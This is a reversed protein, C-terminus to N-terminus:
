IKLAFNSSFKSMLHSVITYDIRLPQQLTYTQYKANEYQLIQSTNGLLLDTLWVINVMPLGFEKGKACKKSTMDIKKCIMVTNQKSLYTTLRAGTEIIMQKVRDREEEEFGTLCIIHKHGPKTLGFVSPTPLHIAQWPPLVQKKTVIDNLWYATVCRKNERIAQMVIGHKQTRCLIHTIKPNFCTEIEGGHMKIIKKWTPVEEKNTEDYEVILFHCGLLFLDAPLKLNPNHGYFQPRALPARGPSFPSTSVKISGAGPSQPIVIQVGSNM